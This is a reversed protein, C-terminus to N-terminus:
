INAENTDVGSWNDFVSFSEQKIFKKLKWSFGSVYIFIFNIFNKSSAMSWSKVM